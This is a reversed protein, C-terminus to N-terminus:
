PVDEITKVDEVYQELLDLFKPVDEPQAKLVYSCCHDLMISPGLQYLGLCQISWFDFQRRPEHIEQVLM